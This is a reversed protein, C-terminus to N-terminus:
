QWNDIASYDGFSYERGVTKWNCSDFESMEKRYEEETTVNGDITYEIDGDLIAGGNNSFTKLLTIKHNEYRLFGSYDYGMHMDMCGVLQKEPCILVYGYSGYQIADMSENYVPGASGNAYYYFRVGAVHFTGESILLEPFGDNDLDQLDWACDEIFDSTSEYDELVKKYATKWDVAGALGPDNDYVTTTETESASVTTEAEATGAESTKTEATSEAETVSVSIVDEATTKAATTVATSESSEESGCATLTLALLAATIIISRKM